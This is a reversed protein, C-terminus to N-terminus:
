RSASGLYHRAARRGGWIIAALLAGGVLWSWGGMQQILVAFIGFAGYFVALLYVAAIVANIAAFRLFGIRLFGSAVFIPFLLWPVLRALVGAALTSRALLQRGEALREPTVFGAIRRSRVALAGIAYLTWDSVIIGAGVSWLALATGIEGSAALGAALLIAAEELVFTAMFLLGALVLPNGLNQEILAEM